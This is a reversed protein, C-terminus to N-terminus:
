KGDKYGTYLRFRTAPSNTDNEFKARAYRLTLESLLKTGSGQDVNASQVVDWDKDNGSEEIYLTGDVNAYVGTMFYRYARLDYSNTVKKGNAGVTSTASTEPNLVRSM